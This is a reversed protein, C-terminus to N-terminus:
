GHNDGTGKPDIIIIHSKVEAYPNIANMKETAEYYSNADVVYHIGGFSEIEYIAMKSAGFPILRAFYFTKLM